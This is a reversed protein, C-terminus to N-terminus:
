VQQSLALKVRIFGTHVCLVLQRFSAPKVFPLLVAYHPRTRYIRDKTLPPPPSSPPYQACRNLLRDAGRLLLNVCAALFVGCCVALRCVSGLFFGLFVLGPVLCALGDTTPHGLHHAHRRNTSCFFLSRVDHSLWKAERRLSRYGQNTPVPAAQSTRCATQKWIGMFTLAMDEPHSKTVIGTVGYKSNDKSYCVCGDTVLCSKGRM